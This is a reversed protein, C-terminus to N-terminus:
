DIMQLDPCMSNLASIAENEEVAVETKEIEDTACKLAKVDLQASCM